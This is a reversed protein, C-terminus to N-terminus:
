WNMNECISQMFLHDIKIQIRGDELKSSTITSNGESKNTGSADLKTSFTSVEWEDEWLLRLLYDENPKATINAIGGLMEVGQWEDNSNKIKIQGSYTPAIGVSPNDQCYAKFVIQYEAIDNAPNVDVEYDGSCLNDIHLNAIAQFSPNNNRFVVKASQSPVNELIFTEPFNGSFNRSMIKKGSEDYFDADISFSSVLNSMFRITSGTASLESLAASALTYGSGLSSIKTSTGAIDWSNTNFKLFAFVDPNPNNLYKASVMIAGGNLDSVMRGMVKIAKISGQELKQLSVTQLEGEVNLLDTIIPYNNSQELALQLFNSPNSKLAKNLEDINAFMQKGNIDKFKVVDTKSIAYSIEYPKESVAASKTNSSISFIFTGDGNPAEGGSLVTGEQESKKSLLLEFTKKGESNIRIGQSLTQYGEIEAHVAFELPSQALVPISPDFTLELQGQPTLYENNKNGSYDVIDNANKGTFWIKAPANIRSNDAVDVLRYSARTKFIDFDIILFNIDEGSDKDKTPDNFMEGCAPFISLVALLILTKLIITEIKSKM